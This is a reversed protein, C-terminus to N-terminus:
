VSKRLDFLQFNLKDDSQDYNIQYDRSIYLGDSHIFFVYSNYISEPFLTEGIINFKKDLIIVSFRKRGFFTRQLYNDFDLETQPYAFRYYVNRYKDYILDGYQARELTNKVVLNPDSNGPIIENKIKHIYKSKVKIKRVQKHDISTVYIHEDTYFSYIFHEGDYDRSFRTDGSKNLYDKTLIDGYFFPCQIFSKNLTDIVVSIPTQTATYLRDVAKQTIYIKSDIFIPPIYPRSSPDYSPVIEYGENTKGYPIKQCVLGATDIRILGSIGYSSIYINNWDKIYYGSIRSVGHPGEHALETKFLLQCSSFDYFLIQNTRYNLFSLYEQGLSDKFVYLYFANYYTDNDLEFSKIKEKSTLEYDYQISQNNVDTKKGGCSIIILAIGIGYLLKM